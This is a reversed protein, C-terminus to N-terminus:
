TYFIRMKDKRKQNIILVRASILCHLASIYIFEREEHEFRPTPRTQILESNKMLVRNFRPSAVAFSDGCNERHGAYCEPAFVVHWTRECYFKRRVFTKVSQYVLPARHNTPLKDTRNSSCRPISLPSRSTHCGASTFKCYNRRSHVGVSARDRM